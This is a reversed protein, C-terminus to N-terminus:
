HNSCHAQLWLNRADVDLQLKVNISTIKPQLSAPGNCYGNFVVTANTGYHKKVFNAYQEAVESYLVGQQCKVKHLVNGGELM